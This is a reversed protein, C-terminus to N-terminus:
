NFYLEYFEFQSSQDLKMKLHYKELYVKRNVNFSIMFSFYCDLVVFFLNQSNYLM